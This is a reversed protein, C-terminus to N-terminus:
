HIHKYDLNYYDQWPHEFLTKWPVHVRSFFIFFGVLEESDGLNMWHTQGEVIVPDGVEFLRDQLAGFFDKDGMEKAAAMSGIFAEASEAFPTYFSTGVAGIGEADTAAIQEAFMEKFSAWAQEAAEPAFYHYFILALANVSARIEETRWAFGKTIAPEGPYGIAGSRYSEYFLKTQPDQMTGEIFQMVQPKIQSYDTGFFRDHLEFAMLAILNPLVEFCGPESEIATVAHANMGNEVIRNYVAKVTAHFNGDHFARGSILKYFGAVLARNCLEVTPSDKPVGVTDLWGHPSPIYTSAVHEFYTLDLTQFPNTYCMSPMGFGLWAMILKESKADFYMNGGTYSIIDLVDTMKRYHGWMDTSFDQTSPMDWIEDASSSVPTPNYTGAVEM